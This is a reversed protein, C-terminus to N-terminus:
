CVFLFNITNWVFLMQDFFFNIAYETKKKSIRCATHRPKNLNWLYPWYSKLDHLLFFEVSLSEYPPESNCLRRLTHVLHPTDCVSMAHQDSINIVFRVCGAGGMVATCHVDTYWICRWATCKVLIYKCVVNCNVTWQFLNCQFSELPSCQVAGYQVQVRTREQVTICQM